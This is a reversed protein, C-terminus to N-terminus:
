QKDVLLTVTRKSTLADLDDVKFDYLDKEPDTTTVTLTGSLNNGTIREIVSYGGNAGISVIVANFLTQALVNLDLGTTFAHACTLIVFSLIYSWVQTPISKVYSLNKTFQTITVVLALAGGYTALSTWNVFETM